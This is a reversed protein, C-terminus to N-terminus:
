APVIRFECVIECNDRVMAWVPCYTDEALQLARQVDADVADPSSLVFELLIKEFCTPHAERRIGTANVKLGAVNKKMKRLLTATTAGSCAALSMLLLELPTYGQGDGLPPKYDIAVAANAGAAGSFHMREGQLDVTTELLEGAM